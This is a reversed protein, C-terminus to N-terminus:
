SAVSLVQVYLTIHCRPQRTREEQLYGLLAQQITFDDGRAVVCCTDRIVVETARTVHTEKPRKYWYPLRVVRCYLLGERNETRQRATNEFAELYQQRGARSFAKSCQTLSNVLM